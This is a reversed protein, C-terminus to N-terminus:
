DEAMQGDGELMAEHARRIILALVDPEQAGVVAFRGDLIMTPVGTVGMHRAAAVDTEILKRDADEEFLDGILGRDLGLREAIDLLVQRDGIDQFDLFYAQFMAEVMAHQLGASRSWRILRHADFTNPTKEIAEFDFDIGDEAGLEVLQRGMEKAQPNDEGFKRRYYEKRPIGGPPIDPALQYPRWAVDLPVDAVEPLARELRRKGLFCWPCIPDSVMDIKLLATGESEDGAQHIDSM